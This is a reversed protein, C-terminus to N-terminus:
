DRLLRYFVKAPLAVGSEVEYYDEAPDTAPGVAYDFDNGCVGAVDGIAFYAKNSGRTGGEIIRYVYVYRANGMTTYQLEGDVIEATYLYNAEYIEEADLLYECVMVGDIYLGSYMKYEVAGNVIDCTQRVEVGIRHWGYEGINPFETVCNPGFTVTGKTAPVFGGAVSCSFDEIDDDFTFRWMANGDGGGSNAIRAFEVFPTYVNNALTENWLFTFEVFLSMGDEDNATPYFCKSGNKLISTYINWKQVVTGSYSSDIIKLTPKTTDIIGAVNSLGCTNCTGVREGPVFLTPYISISGSTVNHTAPIAVESGPKKAGCGAVTCKISKSGDSNCSAPTDVTHTIGWTHSAPIAEESGPKKAPCEKCKVTKVGDETCTPAKDETAVDAWDHELTEIPTISEVNPTFCVTCKVSKQGEYECTPEFDVTPIDDWSHAAPIQEESGEKKESCKTCKISKVGATTCGPETDVTAESAWEHVCGAPEDPTEPEKDNDDEKPTEEPKKLEVDCNDCIYDKNDDVHEECEGCSVFTLMSVILCLIMFFSVTIKKM